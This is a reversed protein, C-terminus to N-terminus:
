DSLCRVSFGNWKNGSGRYASGSGYYLVRCWAFTTSDESSSWCFGDDGIGNFPGKGSRSGGPLGTFDSTNTADQNPSVWLSTGRAKMKGGAVSEGGLYTTLTTWEADSPIHYGTPALKKNPTNPDTDHIGAVAYWNYLKGYTTGNATTNNYYCWAGTTLSAWAYPDTVQPILTGDSYTAVDLNKTTWTQTGITVSPITSYTTLTLDNSYVPSKGGENYSYVRYIYNTSQTLGKDSFTAINTATTGIVEFTGGELKREIKFGTENTSRDTWTLNIATTSIVEGTLNEPPAPVAESKDDKTCGLFLIIGLLLTLIKKM